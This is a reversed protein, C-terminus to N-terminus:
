SEVINFHYKLWNVASEARFPEQSIEKCCELIILTAYRELDESRYGGLNPYFKENHFQAIKAEVALEQIRKNM